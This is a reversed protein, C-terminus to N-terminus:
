QEGKTLEEIRTAKKYRERFYERCIGAVEFSDVMIFSAATESAARTSFAGNGIVAYRNDILMIQNSAPLEDLFLERLGNTYLYGVPSDKDLSTNRDFIVRVAVGDKAKSIIEEIMTKSALGNTMILIEEKASSVLGVLIQLAAENPYFIPKAKFSNGVGSAIFKGSLFYRQLGIGSSIGGLVCIVFTIILLTKGYIKKRATKKAPTEIKDAM